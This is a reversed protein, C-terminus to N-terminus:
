SRRRSAIPSTWWWSAGATPCSRRAFRLRRAAPTRAQPRRVAEAIQARFSTPPSTAPPPSSSTAARRLRRPLAGPGDQPQHAGPEERHRRLRPRLPSRRLPPREFFRACLTADDNRQEELQGPDRAAHPHIRRRHLRPPPRHRGRDQPFAPLNRSLVQGVLRVADPDSACRSSPASVTSPRTSRRARNAPRAGAPSSPPWTSCDRRGARIRARAWADRRARPLRAAGRAGGRRHDHLGGAGRHPHRRRASSATSIAIMVALARM